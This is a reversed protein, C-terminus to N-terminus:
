GHSQVASPGTDHLATDPSPFGSGRTASLIFFRGYGPFYRGKTTYPNEAFELEHKITFIFGCDKLLKEAQWAFLGMGFPLEPDIPQYMKKFKEPHDLKKGSLGNLIDLFFSSIKQVATVPRWLGDSIIIRGNNRLVLAWNKVAQWPDKLTWLLNRTVVADFSGPAFDPKDAPMRLFEVKLNLDGAKSGAIELMRESIDIGTVRYGKAALGLALFGTGTGLDLVKAGPKLGLARSYVDVWPEQRCSTADFSAARWNWYGSIQSCISLDKM